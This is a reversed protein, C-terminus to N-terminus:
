TEAARRAAELAFGFREFAATFHPPLPAEIAARGPIEIRRAHLHLPGAGGGYKADGLIPAGLSACHVRLQHTRGTRPELELWAARKGARDVTRYGTVARRGGPDAFVRSEGGSDRRVLALAVEGAPPRPAGAAVAWYTKAVRGGRFLGALERAAAAHRALVLVGSTERDLRHVLRPPADSDFRLAEALGDVHVRQRPGGQVALGSPKDIAVIDDDRYLVGARLAEADAASVPPPTRAKGRVQPPVRVAQGAALRTGIGARRGDVRVQGTRLLQYLQVRGLAPFRRAFWRDLRAGDDAEAVAITKWVTM